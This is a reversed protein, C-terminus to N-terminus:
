NKFKLRGNFCKVIFINPLFFTLMILILYMLTISEPSLRYYFLGTILYYLYISFIFFLSFYKKKYIFTRIIGRFTLVFIITCLFLSNWGFASYFNAFMTGFMWEFNYIPEFTTIQGEFLLAFLPFRHSLGQFVKTYQVTQDFVYPQQFFYGWTGSILGDIQSMGSQEEYYFRSLTIILLFVFICGGGIIFAYKILKRSKSDIFKKFVQFMFIHALPIFILGDRATFPMSTVIYTLTAIFLPIRFKKLSSEIMSIYFALIYLPTMMGVGVCITTLISNPYFSDERIFTRVESAGMTMAKIAYPTAYIFAYVSLALMVVYVFKVKRLYKVKIEISIIDKLWNDFKYWPIYALLMLISFLLISIVSYEQSIMPIMCDHVNIFIGASSMLFLLYFYGKSSVLKNKIRFFVFAWIFTLLYSVMEATIM